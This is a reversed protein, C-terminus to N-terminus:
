RIGVHAHEIMYGSPPILKFIGEKHEVNYEVDSFELKVVVSRAPIHLEMKEPYGNVYRSYRVTKLLVDDAYSRVQVLEHNEDFDFEQVSRGAGLVLRSTRNEPYRAEVESWAIIDPRVLLISLVERTSLPLKLTGRLFGPGAPGVIARGEGPLLVTADVGNSAALLAPTGFLGLVELRLSDPHNALVVQDTSRWKGSITFSGSALGRISTYRNVILNLQTLMEDQSLREEPKLFYASPACSCLFFLASLALPLIWAPRNVSMVIRTMRIILTFIGVSDDRGIEGPSFGFDTSRSMM